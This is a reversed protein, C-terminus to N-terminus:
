SDKADRAIPYRELCELTQQWLKLFVQSDNRLNLTLCRQLHYGEESPEKVIGAFHIKRNTINIATMYSPLLMHTSILLSANLVNLEIRLLRQLM